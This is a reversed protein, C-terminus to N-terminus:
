RSESRLGFRKQLACRGVKASPVPQLEDRSSDFSTETCALQGRPKQNKVPVGLIAQLNRNGNARRADARHSSGEFTRPLIAHGFAPDFATPPIQQVVHDCDIFSMQVSEQRFVEAVVVLVSRMQSQLLFCGTASSV